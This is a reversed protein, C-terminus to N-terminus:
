AHGVTYCLTLENNESLPGIFIFESKKIARHIQELQEQERHKLDSWRKRVQDKSREVGHKKRLCALVKELIADKRSNPREYIKLKGDYDYKEFIYVLDIMEERSMSTAKMKRGCTGRVKARPEEENEEDAMEHM